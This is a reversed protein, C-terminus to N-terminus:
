NYLFFLLNFMFYPSPVYMGSKYRYELDLYYDLHKSETIYFFNNCIVPNEWLNYVINVSTHM